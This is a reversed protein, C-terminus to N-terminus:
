NRDARARLEGNADTRAMRGAPTDVTGQNMTDAGAPASMRERAIRERDMRERNLRVAETETTTTVTPPTVTTTTTTSPDAPTTTQAVVLGALAVTGAAVLISILSRSAQM